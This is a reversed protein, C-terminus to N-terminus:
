KRYKQKINIIQLILFVTPKVLLEVKISTGFEIPFNNDPGRNALNYLNKLIILFHFLIYLALTTWLLCIGM